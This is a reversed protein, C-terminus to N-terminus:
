EKVGTVAIEVIAEGARLHKLKARDDTIRVLMLIEIRAVDAIQIASGSLASSLTLVEDGSDTESGIIQRTYVTGDNLTVRIDGLPRRAQVYTTYFTDRVRITTSSPGVATALEFDDRHTPLWFSLRSGNFAHLLQRIQWVDEMTALEWRQRTKVRSRDVRSTQFIRGSVNDIIVVPREWNTELMSDMYNYDTIMVKSEYLTQGTTDGVDVNDLTVFEVKTRSDGSAWHGRAANSKMYANRVPLVVANSTYDNLLGDTITIATDTMSDIEYAEFTEADEYIMFLSGVRFDGITTDCPIETAGAALGDPLPQQEFWIPVGFVRAMWDFLLARMQSDQQGSTTIFEYEIRQRPAERIGIRQETGNYSELIDTAWELTEDIEAQPRFPFIVVRRGTVPLSVFTVDFTFDVTGDVVPPGLASISVDIVVSGFPAITYPLTPVGSIESGAGINNDIVQWERPTLYTSAVEVERTQTSLLNGLDLRSPVLIIQNFWDDDFVPVTYGTFAHPTPYFPSRVHTSAFIIEADVVYDGVSPERWPLALDVNLSTSLDITLEEPLEFLYGAYSTM